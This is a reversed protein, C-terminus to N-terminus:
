VREYGFTLLNIAQPPKKAAEGCTKKNIASM